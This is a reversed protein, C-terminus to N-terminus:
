EALKSSAVSFAESGSLADLFTGFGLALLSFAERAGSFIDVKIGFLEDDGLARDSVNFYVFLKEIKKILIM